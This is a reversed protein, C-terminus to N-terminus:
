RLKRALRQSPWLDVARLPILPERDAVEGLKANMATRIDDDSHLYEGPAKMTDIGYLYMVGAWIYDREFSPSYTAVGAEEQQVVTYAWRDAQERSLTGSLVDEFVRRVMQLDVHM